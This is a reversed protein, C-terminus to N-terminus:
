PHLETHRRLVALKAPGVGRVADVEAWSKFGRTGRAQVLARALVPGVGPLLELEEQTAANLDLKGGLTLAVGGRPRGPMGPACVAVGSDLVRVEEVECDLAPESSPWGLRAVAGAGVVLLSLAALWGTRSM